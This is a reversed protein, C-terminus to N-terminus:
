VPMASLVETIAKASDIVNPRIDRLVADIRLVPASVAVSGGVAGSFLFYPAAICCVGPEYEENDFAFGKVRVEELERALLRLKNASRTKPEDRQIRETFVQMQAPTLQALIAKGSARKEESGSYGVDLGKVRLSQQSEIVIQIVAAGNMWRTLYVTEGCSAALRSILPHVLETFDLARVLSANLLGIRRGISLEGRQNKDLYNRSQLTNVIHCTSSLNHQLREAIDKTTLPCDSTAVIELVDLGREITKLTTRADAENPM